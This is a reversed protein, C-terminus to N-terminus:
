HQMRETLLAKKRLDYVQDAMPILGENVQDLLRVYCRTQEDYGPVDLEYTNSVVILHHVSEALTRIDSLIKECLRECLAESRGEEAQDFSGAPDDFLENGVLNSVCELLVTCEKPSQMKEAAQDIDTEREILLFGKGERLARHRKVRRKGEEDLVQMTALYYRRPDGTKMAIEEALESKGSNPTGLVLVM